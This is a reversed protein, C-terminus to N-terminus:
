SADANKQPTRVRAAYLRAVLAFVEDVSIAQMCLNNRCVTQRNNLANICPSCAIGAWLPHSRPGLAGFLLPTEPGFLAVTDISTLAAFHAPGSDNTVLVEALEYVTLLERLSTRGAVCISRTSGVSEALEAISTAEEPAGTFAIWADAFEALLRRALAAYNEGAWRRLPLLDGANANLLILRGHPPVGLRDLLARVAAREEV